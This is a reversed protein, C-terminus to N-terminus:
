VQCRTNGTLMRNQISEENHSERLAWTSIMVVCFHEYCSARSM